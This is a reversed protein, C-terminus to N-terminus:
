GGTVLLTLGGVPDERDFATDMGRIRLGAVQGEDLGLNPVNIRFRTFVASENMKRFKEVLDRHRSLKTEGAAVQGLVNRMELSLRKQEGLDPGDRGETVVVIENNGPVITVHAEHEVVEPGTIDVWGRQPIDEFPRAQGLIPHRLEFIERAKMPAFGLVMQAIPMHFLLFKFQTNQAVIHLNQQAIHRDLRPDLQFDDFPVDLPSFSFCRAFLCKHGAESSPVTYPFEITASSDANVWAAQMNTLNTLRKALRVDFGISPDVMFLEVKASPVALDGRNRLVVRISYTQGAQLETTVSTPNSLPSLTIDPSHWFVINAFPRVGQDADFSRMYLFSSDEFLDPPKRDKRAFERALRKLTDENYAARRNQLEALLKSIRVAGRGM